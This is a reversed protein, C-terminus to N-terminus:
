SQRDGKPGADRPGKDSPGDQDGDRKERAADRFAEGYKALIENARQSAESPPRAAYGYQRMLANAQAVKQAAETLAARKESSRERTDAAYRAKDAGQVNVLADRERLLVSRNAALKDQHALKLAAAKAKVADAQDRALAQRKREQLRDFAARREGANSIVKFTKALLARDGERVARVLDLSVLANRARGFWTQELAEYSLREARQRQALELRQPRYAERVAARARSLDRALGRELSAKRAKHAEALDGWAKAHLAAMTRGRQLLAADKKRQADRVATFLANDNAEVFAQDQEFVNRPKRRDGKVYDGAARAEANLERNPTQDDTGYRKSFALAWKSAKLQDNKDPLMVGHAPHVRNLMIHVHRHEKDRHAYYIAQHEDAFQRQGVRSKARSKSPDSGIQTLLEDAAAIMAEREEPEGDAFSLVIHAVPGKTSKRGAQKGAAAKLQDQALATGVMEKWAFHPDEHALNRTAMWEVRESTSRDNEDHACYAHLGKFSFGGQGSPNIVVIM